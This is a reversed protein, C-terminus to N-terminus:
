AHPASAPGAASSPGAVPATDPRPPFIKRAIDLASAVTQPRRYDPRASLQPELSPSSPQPSNPNACPQSAPSPQSQPQPAPQAAPLNERRAHISNAVAKRWASAGFTQGYENQAARITQLLTQIMYALTRATRAKIHGQLVAPILRALAASLNNASVYNGSFLRSFDEALQATALSQAERRAHYFCFRPHGSARPTRCTRGDSFSFRCLSLRDKPTLSPM